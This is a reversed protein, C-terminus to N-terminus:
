FTSWRSAAATIRPLSASIRWGHASRGWASGACAAADGGCGFVAVLRAPRYARLTRLLVRRRGRQPRLRHGGHVARGAAGARGARVVAGALGAHIADEGAGLVRAATLAALANHVSFAGPMGVAYRAGDVTFAAGLRGGARTLAFDADARVDAPCRHRLDRRPLSLGQM